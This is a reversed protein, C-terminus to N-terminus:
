NHLQQRCIGNSYVIHTHTHTHTHVHPPIYLNIYYVNFLCIFSTRKNTIFWSCASIECIRKTMFSCKESLEDTWWWSNMWQVSLLTHTMHWVAKSCSWTTRSSLQRCVEIVYVMASHVTFLSRIIPCLFQGFCTSNWSLIFKHFQHM